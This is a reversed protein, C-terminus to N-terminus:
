DNHAEPFIFQIETDFEKSIDNLLDHEIDWRHPPYQTWGPGRTISWGYDGTFVNDFGFLSISEPNLHKAAFLVSHLGASLHNEGLDETSSRKMEVHAPFKRKDRLQRYRENWDDCLEHDIIVPRPSFHERYAWENVKIDQHRSDTFVWYQEAPIKRLEAAITLSGCVADIRKGYQKPHKLTEQCRKLRVVFDHNDIDEGM